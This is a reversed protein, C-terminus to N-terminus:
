CIRLGIEVRDLRLSESTQSATVPRFQIFSARLDLADSPGFAVATELASVIFVKPMATAQAAWMKDLLAFANLILCAVSLPM